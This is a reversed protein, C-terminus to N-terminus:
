LDALALETLRVEEEDTIRVIRLALVVVPEPRVQDDLDHAGIVGLPIRDLLPSVVSFCANRLVPDHVRIILRDSDEDEHVVPVNLM